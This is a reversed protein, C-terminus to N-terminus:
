LAPPPSTKALSGGQEGNGPQDTRLRSAGVRFLLVTASKACRSELSYGQHWVKLGAVCNARSTPRSLGQCVPSEYLRHHGVSLLPGLCEQVALKCSSSYASPNASGRSCMRWGRVSPHRRLKSCAVIPLGTLCVPSTLAIRVRPWENLRTSRRIRSSRLRPLTRVEGRRVGVCEPSYPRSPRPHRAGVRETLIPV